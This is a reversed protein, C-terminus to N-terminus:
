LPLNDQMVEIKAPVKGRNVFKLNVTHEKDKQLFGLNLCRQFEVKQIPPYARLQVEM